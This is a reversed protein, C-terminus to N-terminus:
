FLERQRLMMRLMNVDNARAMNFVPIKHRKAIRIAHATGGVVQGEKTWCIVMEVPSELDEGLVQHMNRALLMRATHPRNDYREIVKRAMEIAEDSPSQIYTVPPEGRSGPRKNFGCWPLFIEKKIAVEEFYTDAGPAGGSRLTYGEKNLELAFEHILERAEPPTERSGIGAYVKIKM